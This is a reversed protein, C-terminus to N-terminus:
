GQLPNSQEVARTECAARLTISVRKNAYGTMDIKVDHWRDNTDVDYTLLERTSSGQQCLVSFRIPPASDLAGLGASLYAREPVVLEYALESPCHTYVCERIQSGISYRTVGVEKESFHAYKNLGRVFDIEIRGKGHLVFRLQDIFRTKQNYGWGELALTKIRYTRWEEGRPVYIKFQSRSSYEKAGKHKWALIVSDADTVKMRLLISAVEPADIELNEPSLLSDSGETEVYLVGDRLECSSTGAQTTWHPQGPDDFEFSFCSATEGPAGASVSVAENLNDDFRYFKPPEPAARCSTVALLVAFCALTLQAQRPVVSVGTTM